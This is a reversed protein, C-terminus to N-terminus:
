FAAEAPTKKSRFAGLAPFRSEMVVTKLRDCSVHTYNSLGHHSRGGIGSLGSVCLFPGAFAEFFMSIGGIGFSVAPATAPAAIPLMAPGMPAITPPTAPAMAPLAASFFLDMRGTALRVARRTALPALAIELCVALRRAGLFDTALDRLRVLARGFDFDDRM